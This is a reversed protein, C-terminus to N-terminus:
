LLKKMTPSVLTINQTRNGGIGAGARFDINGSNIVTLEIRLQKTGTWSTSGPLEVDDLFYKATTGTPGTYWLADWIAATGSNLTATVELKFTGATVAVLQFLARRTTSCVFTLSPDSLSGTTVLNGWSTPATGPSGAVYGSFEPNVLLEPGYVKAFRYPNVILM